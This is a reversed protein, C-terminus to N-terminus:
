SETEVRRVKVQNDLIEVVEVNTGNEIVGHESLADLRRDGIRVTGVPRLASEVVGLDGIEASSGIRDGAAKVEDGLVLKQAMSTESWWRWIVWAAVPGLIATIALAALGATTSHVFFAVIAGVMSAAATLALIGGSPVILELAILFIAVGTLGFGWLLTSGDDAAVQAVISM